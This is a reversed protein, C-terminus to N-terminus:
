DHVGGAAATARFKRAVPRPERHIVPLLSGLMAVEAVALVVDAAPVTVVAHFIEPLTNGIVAIIKDRYIRGPGGADIVDGGIPQGALWTTLEAKISAEIEADTLDARGYMWVECAVNIVHPVASAVVATVAYPVAGLEVAAQAIAVDEPQVGGSPTAVYVGVNGYGDATIRTRTIGLNSGDGRAASRVAFTYADWPGAPSLSGLRAACRARLAADSEADMGVLSQPNSVSVGTVTTVM